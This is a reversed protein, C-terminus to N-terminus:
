QEQYDQVYRNSPNNIIYFTKSNITESFNFLNANGSQLDYKGEIYGEQNISGKGIFIKGDKDEISFNIQSQQLNIIGYFHEGNTGKKTIEYLDEGALKLNSDKLQIDIKEPFKSLIRTGPGKLIKILKSENEM